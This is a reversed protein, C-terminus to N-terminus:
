SALACAGVSWRCCPLVRVLFMVWVLRGTHKVGVDRDWGEADGSWWGGDSGSGIANEGVRRRCRDVCTM